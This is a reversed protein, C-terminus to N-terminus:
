PKWRGSAMVVLGYSGVVILVLAALNVTWYVTDPVAFLALAATLAIVAGVPRTATM